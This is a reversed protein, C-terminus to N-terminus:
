ARHDVFSPTAPAPGTMRELAALERNVRAMAATLAAQVAESEALLDRAREALGPPIPGLGPPPVFEPSEDPRGATLAARQQHLREAFLDLAEAWAQEGGPPPATV